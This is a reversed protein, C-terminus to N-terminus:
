SENAIREKITDIHLSHTTKYLKVTLALSLATTCVGIVIATLMLAQPIPDVIHTISTGLIPAQNGIRSGELIFLLVVASNLLNLGFIKKFLNKHVVVAFSGVLFLGLILTREIVM